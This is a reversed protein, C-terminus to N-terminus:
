LIMPQNQSTEIAVDVMFEMSMADFALKRTKYPLKFVNPNEARMAEIIDAFYTWQIVLKSDPALRAITAMVESPTKDRLPKLEQIAQYEKLYNLDNQHQKKLIKFDIGEIHAMPAGSTVAQERQTYLESTTEMNYDKTIGFNNILVGQIELIANITNIQGTYMDALQDAYPHLANYMSRINIKWETATQATTGSEYLAENFVASFIDKVADKVDEKQMTAIYSPIEAFHVMKSLDFMQTSDDPLTITVIDQSSQKYLKGKGECVQCKKIVPGITTNTKDLIEGQGNCKKCKSVYVFKQYFGHLAKTIDYESKNRILDTYLKEAPFLPTVFTRSKTQPDKFYGWRKAPCFDINQDLERVLFDHDKNGVVFREQTFGEFSDMEILADESPLQVMEITHGIGYLTYKYAMEWGPIQESNAKAEKKKALQEAVTYNRPTDLPNSTTAQDGKKKYWRATRVIVFQVKGQTIRFDLTDRADVNYPYPVPIGKENLSWETILWSNPDYFQRYFFEEDLWKKIGAGQSFGNLALQLRELKKDDPDEIYFLNDTVTDSRHVENFYRSVKGSAYQTKSSTIKVRQEKQEKSERTHYQVLAEEQDEGTMMSYAWDAINVTRTYDRHRHGRIAQILYDKETQKTAAM